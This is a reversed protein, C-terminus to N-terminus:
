RKERHLLRVVDDWIWWLLVVLILGMGAWGFMDFRYRVPILVLLLLILLAAGEHRRLWRILTLTM